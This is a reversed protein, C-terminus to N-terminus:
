FHVFVLGSQSLVNANGGDPGRYLGDGLRNYDSVVVKGDGTVAEVYMTHGYYGNPNVAVDGARAGGGYSVPIGRAQAGSPWNAADGLYTFGSKGDLALKYAVWSTCNRYGYGWPDWPESNFVWDYNYCSGGVKGTWLCYANGWPYGGGGPIGPQSGGFLKINELIQQRRLEAIRSKNDKIQRNFADQEVQNLNLLRSQEAKQAGIQSQLDQQEKILREVQEKQTKLQAKLVTIKDLTNKIKDRVAARYQEKDVFDSLNRSTALMEITSIQSELYMVKINEGLVKKQKALEEEAAAIQKQLNDSKAQNAAIQNQLDTIQSQLDSIADQLSEAQMQLEDVKKQNSTNQQQLNRIQQDFQDALVLSGSVGSMILVSAILLYSLLPRRGAYKKIKQKLM